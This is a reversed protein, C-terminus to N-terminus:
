QLDELRVWDVFLHADGARVREVSEAPIGPYPLRVGNSKLPYIGGLALNLVIFKRGDLVWPGYHEVMPRTVRYFVKGDVRFVIADSGCEASYVHWATADGGTELYLRNVFPTEGSYGPGHIAGNVWERDGVNEMVDIEGGHPWSADSGLLWFAPWLGPGTPLKIRASVIGTRFELKGRTDIRGSVFDFRRGEATCYGPQLRAQIVLAGRCGNTAGAGRVCGVTAPSDIYAQQENNVVPGTVIVNWRSRDLEGADFHDEFM